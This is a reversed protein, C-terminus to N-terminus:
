SGSGYSCDKYYLDHTIKNEWKSHYIVAFVNQTMPVIVISMYFKWSCGKWIIYWVMMQDGKFFRYLLWILIRHSCTSKLSFFFQVGSQKQIYNLTFHESWGGTFLWAQCTVHLATVQKLSWALVETSKHHYLYFNM